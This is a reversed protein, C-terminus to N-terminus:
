IKKVNNKEAFEKDIKKQLFCFFKKYKSNEKGVVVSVLVNSYVNCEKKQQFNLFQWKLESTRCILPRIRLLNSYKPPIKILMHVHDQVM